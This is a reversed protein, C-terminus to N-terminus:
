LEQTESQQSPAGYFLGTCFKGLWYESSQTIKCNEYNEQLCILKPKILNGLSELTELVNQREESAILFINTAAFFWDTKHSHRITPPQVQFM